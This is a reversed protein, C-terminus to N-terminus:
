FSGKQQRKIVFLNKELEISKCDYNGEFIRSLRRFFSTTPRRFVPTFVRKITISNKM